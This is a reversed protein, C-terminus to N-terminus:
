FSILPVVEEYVLDSNKNNKGKIVSMCKLVKKKLKDNRLATQRFARAASKRINMSETDSLEIGKQFFNEFFTDKIENNIMAIRSYLVFGCSIKFETDSSILEFAKDYFKKDKELINLVTQEALEQTSIDEIIKNIEDNNLKSIDDIMLALIKTERFNKTRLLDALHCNPKYTESIKKLNILSVGFNKYYNLGLRKMGDVTPGSEYYRIEKLITKFDKEPTNM